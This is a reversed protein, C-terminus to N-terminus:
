PACTRSINRGTERQKETERECLVHVNLVSEREKEKKEIM